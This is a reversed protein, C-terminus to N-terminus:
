LRLDVVVDALLIGLLRVLAGLSDFQELRTLISSLMYFQTTSSFLMSNRFLFCALLESRM